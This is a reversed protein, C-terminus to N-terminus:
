ITSSAHPTRARQRWDDWAQAAGWKLVQLGRGVMLKIEAIGKRCRASPLRLWKAVESTFVPSSSTEELFTQNGGIPVTPTTRYEEATSGRQWRFRHLLRGKAEMSDLGM